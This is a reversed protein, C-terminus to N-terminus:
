TLGRLQWATARRAAVFAALGSGKHARRYLSGAANHSCSLRPTAASLLAYGVQQRLLSQRRPAAPEGSGSGVLCVACISDLIARARIFIQKLMSIWSPM